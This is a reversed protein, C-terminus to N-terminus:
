ALFRRLAANVADPNEMPALHGAAPIEVYSANPIMSAMSRMEDPPSIADDEGCLVLTPLDLSPLLDTSDPRAAMARLAAAVSERPAALIMKGVAAAVLPRTALSRLGLLSRPMGRALGSTGDKLVDEATREREAQKESSDAAAKTDCLVLRALRARHRRVFAFAVYGGMSLGCLTVPVTVGLADLLGALDDAYDDMTLLGAVPSGDGFGRLDPAIVRHSDALAETQAQWMRRTLPFGPVFLIPSGQGAIDVSFTLERVTVNM